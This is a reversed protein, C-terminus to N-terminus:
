PRKVEPLESLELLIMSLNDQRPDDRAHVIEVIDNLKRDSHNGLIGAVRRLDHGVLGDSSALICAIGEAALDVSAQDISKIESGLVASALYAKTGIEHTHAVNLKELRAGGYFAFLLSDGISLFHLRRGRLICVVLTAGCRDVQNNTQFERLELNAVEAASRAAAQIAADDRPRDRRLREGLDRLVAANVTESAERGRPLGGIGDTLVALVYGEEGADSPIQLVNVVDQQEDRAGRYRIKSARVQM